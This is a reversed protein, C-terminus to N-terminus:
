RAFAFGIGIAITLVGVTIGFGVWGWTRASRSFSQPEITWPKKDWLLRNANRAYWILLALDALLIAGTLPWWSAPVAEDILNELVGLGFFAAAWVAPGKVLPWLVPFFFAGWNFRDLEAPLPVVRASEVSRPDHGRVCGGGDRLWTDAGCEACYGARASMNSGLIAADFTTRM